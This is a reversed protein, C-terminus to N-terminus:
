TTSRHSVRRSHPSPFLLVTNIKLTTAQLRIEGLQRDMEDLLELEAASRQDPVLTGLRALRSEVQYTVNRCTSALLNLRESKRELQLTTEVAALLAILISAVLHIATNNAPGFLPETADRFAVFAGLVVIILKMTVAITGNRRSWQAMGVYTVKLEDIRRRLMSAITPMAEEEM